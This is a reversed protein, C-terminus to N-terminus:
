FGYVPPDALEDQKELHDMIESLALCIAIQLDQGTAKSPDDILEKVSVLDHYNKAGTYYHITVAKRKENWKFNHPM